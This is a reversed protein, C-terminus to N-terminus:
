ACVREVEERLASYLRYREELFAELNSFLVSLANQAEMYFDLFSDSVHFDDIMEAAKQADLGFVNIWSEVPAVRNVFHQTSAFYVPVAGLAFADFFKESVYHNQHTNELASMLRCRMDFRQLKDLHWDRLKQRPKGKMWGRGERAVSHTEFRAALHSRFAALGYVAQRPYAVDYRPSTRREAVFAAHLPATAFHRKWDRKGVCANRRFRKAYRPLFGHHTLLYYPVREFRFIQSTQHNLYTYAISQGRVELRQDRCFIRHGWITDWFPEESLLLVRVGPRREVEEALVDECERMDDPHAFVLLDSASPQDSFRIWDACMARIHHYAFPQRHSRRGLACATIM